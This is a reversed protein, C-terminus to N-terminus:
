HVSCNQISARVQEKGKPLDALMQGPNVILMPILYLTVQRMEKLPTKTVFFNGSTGQACLFLLVCVLDLYKYSATLVGSFRIHSFLM